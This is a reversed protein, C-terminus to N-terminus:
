TEEYRKFKANTSYWCQNSRLNRSGPFIIHCYKNNFNRCIKNFEIKVKAKQLPEYPLLKVEPFMAELYELIAMSQTITEDNFVFAPM